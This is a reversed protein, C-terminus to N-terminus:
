PNDAEVRLAQASSRLRAFPDGDGLLLSKLAAALLGAGITAVAAVGIMRRVRPSLRSLPSNMAELARLVVSV